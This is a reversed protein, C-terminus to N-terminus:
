DTGDAPKTWWATSSARIAHLRRDPGGQAPLLQGRSEAPRRADPQGRPHQARGRRRLPRRHPVLRPRPPGLMTRTVLHEIRLRLEMPIDAPCHFIELPKAPTDWIWKAEYSYIPTAGAPLQTHDIEVIPLIELDPIIASSASPSSAAASSGSSSSRSITSGTSRPSASTSNARRGSSPTTRSARARDRTFRSSSPRSASRGRCPVRGIGRDLVRPNPIRHYSLIEKTRSKDLCLGLTLPDSGTYPIDLMECVTPIHSERNPGFVREAFNFVLHPKLRKLRAYAKDDSEILFVQYREQLIQQIALSRRTPTASLLCISHLNTRRTGRKTAADSSRAIAEMGAKSSYLLAIKMATLERTCSLNVYTGRTTIM